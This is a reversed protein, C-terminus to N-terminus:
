GAYCGNGKRKWVSAFPLFVAPSHWFLCYPSPTLLRDKHVSECSSSCLVLCYVVALWHSRFLSLVNTIGKHVRVGPARKEFAGSVKRARFAMKLWDTDLFLSTYVGWVEHIFLAETWILLIHIFCSQLWLTRSKSVAKRTRFSKPLKSFRAGPWKYKELLSLLTASCLKQYTQKM